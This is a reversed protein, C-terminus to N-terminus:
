KGSRSALYHRQAKVRNGCTAMSCWRRSKNRSVDLFLWSCACCERVNSLVPQTLLESAAIALRHQILASGARDPDVVWRAPMGAEMRLNAHQLAQRIHSELSSRGGESPSEGGAIASFVAHAAERLAVLEKLAAAARRGELSRVVQLVRGDRDDLVGNAAAWEVAAAWDILREKDRVKGAGGCTNMFDLVAHGGIESGM